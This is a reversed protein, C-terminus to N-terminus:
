KIRSEIMEIINKTDEDSLKGAKNFLLKGDAAFLLVNYDDDKLNWKDVFVKENDKVYITHPYNEQKTELGGNILSNPIWTADMNIVVISNYKSRDYNKDKITKTFEDNLDKEDPDIYFFLYVKDKIDKTSFSGGKVRGGNDKELLVTNPIENIQINAFLSSILLTSALLIKKM